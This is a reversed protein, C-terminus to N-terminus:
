GPELSIINPVARRVTELDFAEYYNGKTDKFRYASVKGADFAIYIAPKLTATLGTKAPLQRAQEPEADEYEAEEYDGAMLALAENVANGAIRMSLANDPALSIGWTKKRMGDPTTMSREERTLVFPVGRLRLLSGSVLSLA